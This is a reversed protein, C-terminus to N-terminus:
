GDERAHTAVSAVSQQQADRLAVLEATLQRRRERALRYSDSGSIPSGSLGFSTKKKSSACRSKRSAFLVNM